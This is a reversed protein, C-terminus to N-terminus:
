HKQFLHLFQALLDPELGIRLLGEATFAIQLATAPAADLTVANSVPASALWERAAQADRITLLLFTCETLRRYGFRVLGQVQELEVAGSM